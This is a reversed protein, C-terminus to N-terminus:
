GACGHTWTTQPHAGTGREIRVDICVTKGSYPLPFSAEKLSKEQQSGDKDFYRVWFRDTKDARDYKWTFVIEDGEIVGTIVPEGPTTNQNGLGGGGPDYTPTPPPPPPPESKPGLVFWLVLAIVALLILVLGIVLTRPSTSPPPPDTVEPGTGRSRVRTRDEQVAPAVPVVGRVRTADSSPDVSVAGRVRTADVAAGAPVVTGKGDMQPAVETPPRVRTGDDPASANAVPAGPTTRRTERAVKFPTPRLRLEEEISNLARAFDEATAPRMKPNKAMAQKLLRELSAPVDSRGTSPVPLDRVRVMMAAPKNDGGPVEFPSHGVLLHWLTAALSYVDCRRDLAATAFMSEPPAWPVSLSSDSADADHLHSAIGFDTLAPDGFKDILVNAPKIDRHLLGVRHAAEIASALQVGIRLVEAVPLPGRAVAQALTDEPYYAMEIYPRGDETVGSSYVRVIYPHELAAMTNAEDAFRRMLQGSRAREHLVKVAVNRLPSVSEYLYVDAFGGSGLFGKYTLGPITPARQVNSV